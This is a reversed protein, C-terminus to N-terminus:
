AASDLPVYLGDKTVRRGRQLLKSSFWEARLYERQQFLRFLTLPVQKDKEELARQTIEGKHPLHLKTRM